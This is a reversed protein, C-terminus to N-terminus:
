DPSHTSPLLRYLSCPDTIASIGDGEDEAALRIHDHWLREFQPFESFVEEHEPYLYLIDIPALLTASGALIAQLLERLVPGQFPNYLYLLTPGNLLARVATPADACVISTPVTTETQSRWQELNSRAIQALKESLEIGVVDRFPMRSALMVARGKGCGVDVFRYLETSATQEVRWREIAAEFRSPPVGFYATNSVDNAHGTLLHAREILGSTDVGHKADFPHVKVVAPPQPRGVVRRAIRKVLRLLSPVGANTLQVDDQSSATSSM